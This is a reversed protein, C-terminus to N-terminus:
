VTSTVQLLQNTLLWFLLELNPLKRALWEVKPAALKILITLDSYIYLGNNHLVMDM